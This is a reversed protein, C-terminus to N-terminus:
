SSPTMGGWEYPAGLYARAEEVPDGERAALWGEDPEGGLADARVWGPLRLGDPRAGM